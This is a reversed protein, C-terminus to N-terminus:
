VIIDFMGDQYTLANVDQRDFTVHKSTPSPAIVDCAYAAKPSVHDFLWGTGTGADLLTARGSNGVLDVINPILGRERLYSSDWESDEILRRYERASSLWGSFRGASIQNRVAQGWRNSDHEGVLLARRIWGVRALKAIM